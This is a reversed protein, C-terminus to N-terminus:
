KEFVRKVFNQLDKKLFKKDIESDILRLFNHRIRLERILNKEVQSLKM